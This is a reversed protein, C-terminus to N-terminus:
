PDLEALGPQLLQWCPVLNGSRASSFPATSCRRPASPECSKWTFEAKDPPLDAGVVGIAVPVAICLFFLNFGVAVDRILVDLPYTEAAEPRVRVLEAHYDALCGQSYAFSMETLDAVLQNRYAAPFRQSCRVKIDLGQTCLFLLVFDWAVPWKAVLQWDGIVFEEQGKDKQRWINGPNMDGHCLTLPRTNWVAELNDVFTKAKDANNACMEDM